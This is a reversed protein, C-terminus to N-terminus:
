RPSPTPPFLGQGNGPFRRSASAILRGGICVASTRVFLGYFPQTQAPATERRGGFIEKGRRETQQNLGAAILSRTIPEPPRSCARTHFSACDGCPVWIHHAGPLAPM